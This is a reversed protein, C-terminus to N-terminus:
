IIDLGVWGPLNKPVIHTIGPDRVGCLVSHTLGLNIHDSIVDGLSIRRYYLYINLFRYKFLVKVESVRHSYRPRYKLIM